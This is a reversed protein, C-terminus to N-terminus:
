IKVGLLCVDDMQEYSGKWSEFAKSFLEKQSNMPKDQVSLILKKFNSSKFKKNNDGGFQDVFGDSFIYICDGSMLEITHTKFPEDKVYNGIPQKDGKIIIIESDRVIWLPNNAGSFKLINNEDISCLSIDMGDNVEINSSSFEQIIISKTVDLVEGPITKGYQRVSRNLANHCMVSVFAGPVGHGTCDAVAFLTADKTKELWYFDGAVIDKPNYYIFSNNLLENFKEDNPLIVKQIRKAYQISDTIDRNKIEIIKKQNEVKNKEEVVVKNIRKYQFLFYVVLVIGLLLLGGVILLFNTETKKKNIEIDKKELKINNILSDQVLMEIHHQQQDLEYKTELESLRNIFDDTKISDNILIYRNLYNASSKFNGLNYEINSYAMYVDAVLKYIKLEQAISLSKDAYSRAKKYIGNNSFTVALLYNMHAFDHKMNNEKAIKIGQEIQQVGKRFYGMEIYADGINNYNNTLIKPDNIKKGLSLAKKYYELAKNLDGLLKYNKGLNTFIGARGWYDNESSYELAKYCFKKAMKYDNIVQYLGATNSSIIAMAMSDNLEQMFPMANRYNLIALDYNATHHHTVGINAYSKYLGMTYNNKLSLKLAKDYYILSQSYDGQDSSINGKLILINAINNEDSLEYSLQEAKGLYYLASDFKFKLSFADAILRLSNIKGLKYNCSDSIELADHMLVMTSDFDKHVLQRYSDVLTNVYVTDKTNSM